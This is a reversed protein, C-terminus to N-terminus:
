QTPNYKIYIISYCPISCLLLSTFIVSEVREEKDFRCMLIESIARMLVSIIRHLERTSIIHPNAVIAVLTWIEVVVARVLPMATVPTFTGTPRSVCSLLLGCVIASQLNYITHLQSKGKIMQTIIMGTMCSNIILHKRGISRSKFSVQTHVRRM